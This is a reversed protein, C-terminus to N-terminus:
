PSLDKAEGPLSCRTMFNQKISQSSSIGRSIQAVLQWVLNQAASRVEATMEEGIDFRRGEIGYVRLQKPLSGLHEALAIAEAVGLGHSSAPSSVVHAVRALDWASVTGIPAGTRVADVVIVVDMGQWLDILSIPDRSHIISPFGLEQLREAVFIGAADDERVRNGCGIILM